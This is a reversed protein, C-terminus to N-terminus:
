QISYRHQNREVFDGLTTLSFAGSRHNFLLTMSYTDGSNLYEAVIHSGDMQQEGNSVYEVGHMELLENLCELIRDLRWMPHHCRNFLKNSKPFLKEDKTRVIGQILGRAIMAKEPTIKLADVLRKVSPARLGTLAM